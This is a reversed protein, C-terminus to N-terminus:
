GWFELSFAFNQAEEELNKPKVSWWDSRGAVHQSGGLSFLLRQLCSLRRVTVVVKYPGNTRGKSAGGRNQEPESLEV